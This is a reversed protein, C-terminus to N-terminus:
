VAGFAVNDRPDDGSISGMAVITEYQVRGARGGLVVQYTANVTPLVGLTNIVISNTNVFGEGGDNITITSIVNQTSNSSSAAALNLSNAIGWSANARRGRGSNDVISLYGSTNIGAGGTVVIISTIPGTGIKQSVWGSHTVKHVPSTNGLLNATQAELASIGFVGGYVGINNATTGHITSAATTNTTNAFVPKQNGSASDVNGWLM